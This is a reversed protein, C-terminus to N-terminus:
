KKGKLKKISFVITPYIMNVSLDKIHEGMTAGIVFSDFYEKIIGILLIFIYINLFKIKRSILFNTIIITVFLHAIIDLPVIGGIKTKSIFGLFQHIIDFM